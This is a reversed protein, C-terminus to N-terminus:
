NPTQKSAWIADNQQTSFVVDPWGEGAQDMLTIKSQFSGSGGSSGDYTEMEIPIDPNAKKFATVAPERAADVWVTIPSEKVQDAATFGYDSGAATDGGGSSGSCASLALLGVATAAVATLVRMAPRLASSQQSM